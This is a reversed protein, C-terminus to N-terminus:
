MDIHVGCGNYRKIKVEWSNIQTPYRTSKNRMSASRARELQYFTRYYIIICLNTHLQSSLFMSIAIIWNMFMMILIGRSKTLDKQIIDYVRSFIFHIKFWESNFFKPFPFYYKFVHDDSHSINVLSMNEPFIIPLKPDTYMYQVSASPTSSALCTIGTNYNIFFCTFNWFQLKRLSCGM